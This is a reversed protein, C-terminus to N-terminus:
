KGLQHLIQAAEVARTGEFKTTAGLEEEAHSVDKNRLYAKALYFHAEESYTPDGLSVTKRFSDIASDTRGTLLYCAGLYFNFSSSQPSANVAARLGPIANAYDRKLYFKMAQRFTEQSEDEAGRLVVAAYPPPEVRALTELSASSPSSPQHQEPLVPSAASPSSSVQQSPQQERASYWWIGVVFLLTVTVLAPTLAWARRFLASRPQALVAPHHQLEEQVVLATRLQAFCSACEFYHSEFEDRDPGTLRGLLYGELIDREEVDRCDM